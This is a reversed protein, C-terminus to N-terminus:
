VSPMLASSLPYSGEVPYRHMWIYAPVSIFCYAAREQFDRPFTFTIYLSVNIRFTDNCCKLFNNEKNRMM